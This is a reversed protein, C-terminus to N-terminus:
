CEFRDTRFRRAHACELYRTVNAICERSKM